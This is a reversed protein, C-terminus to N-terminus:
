DFSDEGICVLVGLGDETYKKRIFALRRLSHFLKLWSQNNYFCLIKIQTKFGRYKQLHWQLEFKLSFELNELTTRPGLVMQINANKCKSKFGFRFELNTDLTLNGASDPVSIRTMRLKYHISHTESESDAKLSMKSKSLFIELNSFHNKGSQSMATHSSHSMNAIIKVTKINNKEEEEGV